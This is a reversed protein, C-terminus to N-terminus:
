VLNYGTRLVMARAGHVEVTTEGEIMGKESSGTKALPVHKPARLHAIVCHEKRLGMVENTPMDKHARFEHIGFDSEYVSISNVLRKDQADINRTNGATFKSIDRKKKGTTLILDVVYEDTINWSDEIMDNFETESLSTGSNRATYLGEDVIYNRIGHMERAVGSSGSAKTGRIIAFEQTNKYRRMAYALERAYADKKGIKDVVKMTDSVAFPEQIIQCINNKRTATQLDAFTPDNGEQQKNNSTERSEHYDGWE